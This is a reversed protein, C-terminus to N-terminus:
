AEGNFYEMVFQLFRKASPSLYREKVWAVGIIRRCEPFSVSLKALHYGGLGKVEPILAVGFGAAALGAVTHIEEGEFAIRPTFGAEACLRDIITRPGYGTKFSIMPEDAIEALSVSPRDVLRHHTPVFVFLEESWLQRWELPFPADGPVSCLCLDTTGEGLQQLLSTTNSQNLQFRVKPYRVRFSAILDPILHSGM